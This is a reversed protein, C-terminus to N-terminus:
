VIEHKSLSEGNALMKDVWREFSGVHEELMEATPANMNGLLIDDIWVRLFFRLPVDINLEEMKYIRSEVSKYENAVMNCLCTDNASNVILLQYTTKM